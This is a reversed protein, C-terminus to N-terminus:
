EQLGVCHFHRGTDGFARVALPSGEENAATTPSALTCLEGTNKLQTTGITDPCDLCDRGGPVGFLGFMNDRVDRVRRRKALRNKMERPPAFRQMHRCPSRGLGGIDKTWFYTAGWPALKSGCRQGVGRATCKAAFFRSFSIDFSEHVPYRGFLFGGTHSAHRRQKGKPGRSRTGM